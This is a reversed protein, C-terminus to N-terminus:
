LRQLGSVLFFHTGNWKRFTSVKGQWIKERYEICLYLFLRKQIYFWSGLCHWVRQSPINLISVSFASSFIFVHSLISEFWMQSIEFSLYGHNETSKDCTIDYHLLHSRILILTHCNEPQYWLLYDLRQTPVPLLRAINDGGVLPFFCPLCIMIVQRMWALSWIDQGRNHLHPLFYM